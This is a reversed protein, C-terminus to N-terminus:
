ALSERPTAKWGPVRGIPYGWPFFSKGVHIMAEVLMAVFLKGHMWARCVTENQKPLHGLQMLSKLRKFVIEVQWRCRYIELVTGADAMERTLTTFVFCYGAFELTRPNIKKGKKSAELLTRKRAKEAAALSLKIACIRGPFPEAKTNLCVDWDGIEGHQLRHLKGLLDFPKGDQTQFHHSSIARVVVQAGRAHVEKITSPHFYGRDIVFVDGAQIEFNHLTEGVKFDTVKFEQCFLSFPDLSYHIRWDSGSSGPEQVGTADVLRIRFGKGALLPQCPPCWRNKLEITMWRLWEGSLKLKKLLAVDSVDALKSLKARGATERLSAGDVLHIMLLRLLVEPSEIKRVREIVGMSKAQLEWNEPLFSLLEKWDQDNAACYGRMM